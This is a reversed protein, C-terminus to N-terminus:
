ARAEAFPGKDWSKVVPLVEQAFLRMGKEAEELSNNGFRFHTIFAGIDVHDAAARLKELVQKPTGWPMLDVFDRVKDDPLEEFNAATRAYHEYGKIDKFHSGGFNYFKHVARYNRGMYKLAMDKAYEADNDVVYFGVVAPKPAPEDPRKDTWAKRFIDMNAKVDDWSKLPFVIPGMGLSAFLPMSEPSMGAAYTRGRFTKFPAPRIERRPQHVHKGEFEMFGNELAEVIAHASENFIDRTANMDVKFGAMEMQGLGRGIGLIYRGNSLHDLLAVDEAVRVPNHWPLIVVLSGLRVTKTRGAVYSLFQLVNPTMEYSSFHHESEWISDFGLPEALDTLKIEEEYFLKDDFESDLNQFNPAYGVHM